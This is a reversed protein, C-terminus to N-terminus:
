FRDFQGYIVERRKKMQCCYRLPIFGWRPPRSQEPAFQVGQRALPYPAQPCTRDSLDAYQRRFKTRHIKLDLRLEPRDM